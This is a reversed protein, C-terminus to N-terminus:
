NQRRNGITQGGVRIKGSFELLFAPELRKGMRERRKGDLFVLRKLGKYRVPEREM